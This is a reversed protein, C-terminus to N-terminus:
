MPRRKWISTQERSEVWMEDGECTTEGVDRREADRWMRQEGRGKLGCGAGCGAGCEAGGVGSRRAAFGYRDEVDVEGGFKVVSEDTRDMVGVLRKVARENIIRGFFKSEQPAEGYMQSTWYRMRDYFMDAISADVLIYDPRVCTQGANLFTGWALRRAAIDIDASKTVIAPSKGGLELVTPTLHEAAAAAVMKGVFCGGTFFIKDFRQRLVAGTMERGGEVAQVCDPDMHKTILAQLATSTAASYRDSPLKILVSNGAAIAGVVPLMTLQVPYNWAGIVLVVGLPDPYTASSGGINLLDTGVATPAMYAGLHDLMHQIEHEVLNMETYYAETSSKHLDSALAEILLPRGEVM